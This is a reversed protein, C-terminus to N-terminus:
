GGHFWGVLIAIVGVVVAAVAAWLTWRVYRFMSREYANREAEKERLWRLAFQRKPEPYIGAGRYLTDHTLREGNAEFDARWAREEESDPMSAEGREKAILREEV